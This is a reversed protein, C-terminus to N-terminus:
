KILLAWGVHDKISVPLAVVKSTGFMLISWEDDKGDLIRWKGRSAGGPRM